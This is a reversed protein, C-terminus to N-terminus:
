ISDEVLWYCGGKGGISDEVLATADTDGLADVLSGEDRDALAEQVAADKAVHPWLTAKGAIAEEALRWLAATVAEDHTKYTTTM